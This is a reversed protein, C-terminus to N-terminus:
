VYLLLLLQLALNLLLSTNVVHGKVSFFPQGPGSTHALASCAPPQSPTWPCLLSGGRREQLVSSGLGRGM